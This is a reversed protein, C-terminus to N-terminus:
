RTPAIDPVAYPISGTGNVVNPEALLDDIVPVIVSQRGAVSQDKSRIPFRLAPVLLDDSNGNLQYRSLMYVQTPAETTITVTPMSADLKSWMWGGRSLYDKIASVNSTVTYTSASFTRTMLNYVSQVTKTSADVTVQVGFLTGSEDYVPLNNVVWPYVVMVSAVVPRMPMNAASDLMMVPYLSSQVVPTGYGETSIGHNKLFSTAAAIADADSLKPAGTNTTSDPITTVTGSANVSVSGSSGTAVDTTAYMPVSRYISVTGQQADVYVTYGDTTQQSFTVQSAQLDGFSSLSLLSLNATNSLLPSGISKNRKLVDAHPITITGDYTFVPYKYDTASPKDVTTTTAPVAGNSESTKVAADLAYASQSGSTRTINASALTGFAHQGVATITVLPTHSSNTSSPHIHPYVFVALAAVAPIAVAPWWRLLSYSTRVPQENMLRTKLQVIFQENIVPSPKHMMVSTLLARLEPEHERFSPDSAYLEEILKDISTQM